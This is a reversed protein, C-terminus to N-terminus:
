DVMLVTLFMYIHYCPTKISKAMYYIMPITLIELFAVFTSWNSLTQLCSHGTYMVQVTVLIQSFAM